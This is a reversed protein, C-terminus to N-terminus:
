HEITDRATNVLGAIATTDESANVSVLYGITQKDSWFCISESVTAISQEFCDVAGGHSGAPYSHIGLNGGGISSARLEPFDSPHAAILILKPPPQGADGYTGITATSFFKGLEGSTGFTQGITSRFRDATSGPLQQYAGLTAPLTLPGNSGSDKKSGSNSVVVAIVGAAAAVLITALAVIIKVSMRRKPEPALPMGPYPQGAYPQGPYPQGPYPQGAYPQGAYPQGAYPQGPYPQGPYPQPPYPQGPYPQAEAPQAPYPQAGPASTYGLTGPPEAAPQYPPTSAPAAPPPYPQASREGPDVPETM